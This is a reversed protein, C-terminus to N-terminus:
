IMTKRERRGPTEDLNPLPLPLIIARIRVREQWTVKYQGGMRSLNDAARSEPAQKLWQSILLRWTILPKFCSHLTPKAWEQAKVTALLLFLRLSGVLGLHSVYIASNLGLWVLRSWCVGLPGAFVYALYITITKDVPNQSLKNHLM